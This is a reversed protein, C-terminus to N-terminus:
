TGGESAWFTFVMCTIATVSVSQVKLHMPKTHTERLLAASKSTYTYSQNFIFKWSIIAPIIAKLTKSVTNTELCQHKLSGEAEM